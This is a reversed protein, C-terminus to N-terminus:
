TITGYQLLHSKIQEKTHSQICLPHLGTYRVSVKISLTKFGRLLGLQNKICSKWISQKHSQHIPLLTFNQDWHIGVPKISDPIESVAKLEFNPTANM